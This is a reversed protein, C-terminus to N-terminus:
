FRSRGGSHIRRDDSIRPVVQRVGRVYMAVNRREGLRNVRFRVVSAALVGHDAAVAKAHRCAADEASYIVETPRVEGPLVKHVAWM